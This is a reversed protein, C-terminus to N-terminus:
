SSEVGVPSATAAQASPVIRPTPAISPARRNSWTQAILWPSASRAKRALAMVLGNPPPCATLTHRRSDLASGM